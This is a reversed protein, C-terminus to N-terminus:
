RRAILLGAVLGAFTAAAAVLGIARWPDAQVYADTARAAANAQSLSEDRIRALRQGAEALRQEVGQKFVGSATGGANAVSKLLAETEVIVANFEDFLKEKTVESAIASM